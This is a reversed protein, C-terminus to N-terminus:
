TTSANVKKPFAKNMSSVAAEIAREIDAQSIGPLKDAIIEYAKGFKDEGHLDQFKQEVFYVATWAFAQLKESKIKSLAEVILKGLLTGIVGAIPILLAVLIQGLISNM